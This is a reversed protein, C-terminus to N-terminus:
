PLPIMLGSTLPVIYPDKVIYSWGVKWSEDETFNVWSSSAEDLSFWKDCLFSCVSQFTCVQFRVENHAVESERLRRTRMHSSPGSM